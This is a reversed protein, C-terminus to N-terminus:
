FTIWKFPFHWMISPVSRLYMIMFKSGRFLSVAISNIHLLNIPPFCRSPYLPPSLLLYLSADPWMLTQCPLLSLPFSPPSPQFLWLNFTTSLWHRIGSCLEGVPLETHLLFPGTGQQAWDNGPLLCCSRPRLMLELPHRPLAPWPSDKWCPFRLLVRRLWWLHYM